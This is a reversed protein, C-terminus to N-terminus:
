VLSNFLGSKGMFMDWRKFSSQALGRIISVAYASMSATNRLRVNTHEEWQGISTNGTTNIVKVIDEEEEIGEEEETGEEESSSSESSSSELYLSIQNAFCSINSTSMYLYALVYIM